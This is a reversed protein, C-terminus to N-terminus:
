QTSEASKRKNRDYAPGALFYETSKNAKVEAKLKMNNNTLKSISDINTSCKNERDTEKKPQVRPPYTHKYLM